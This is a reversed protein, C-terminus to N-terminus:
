TWDATLAQVHESIKAESIGVLDGEWIPQGAVWVERIARPSQAYVLNKAV